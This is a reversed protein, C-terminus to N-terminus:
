SQHPWGEPLPLVETPLNHRDAWEARDQETRFVPVAIPRLAAASPGHQQHPPWKLRQTETGVERAAVTAEAARILYDPREDVGGVPFTHTQDVAWPEPEPEGLVRAVPEPYEPGPYEPGPNEQPVAVPWTHEDEQESFVPRVMASLRVHDRKQRDEWRKIRDQASSRQSARAVAQAALLMALLWGLATGVIGRTDMPGWLIFWSAGLAALAVAGTVAISAVSPGPDDVPRHNSMDGEEQNFDTM